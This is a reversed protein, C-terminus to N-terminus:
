SMCKIMSLSDDRPSTIRAHVAQTSTLIVCTADITRLRHCSLKLPRFKRRSTLSKPEKELGALVTKSPKWDRFHVLKTSMGCPLLNVDERPLFNARPPRVQGPLVNWSARAWSAREQYASCATCYRSELEAAKAGITTFMNGSLLCLVLLPSCTRVNAAVWM